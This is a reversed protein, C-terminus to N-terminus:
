RTGCTKESLFRQVLFVIGRGFPCRPPRCHGRRRRTKSRRIEVPAFHCSSSFGRSSYRGRGRARICERAAHRGNVRGFVDGRRCAAAHYCFLACASAARAGPARTQVLCGSSPPRIFLWRLLPYSPCPEGSQDRSRAPRIRRRENRFFLPILFGSGISTLRYQLIEVKTLMAIMMGATYAGLVLEMGLENALSVAGFLIMISIRVPLVSTDGMWRAIMHSLRESRLSRAFVIAAIAIALFAMSLLTQHLHQHAQALVLPALILPGLEGIAAAGLVYRGFNSDLDRSQRLIPILMGFATTPLVIGVLLPAHVLGVLYLLGIFVSTLGLSVLWALAGLRLPDAGIKDPNFEFGAQFFLFILGFEGLLGISGHSTVWGAGSPGILIGLVLELIVAPMRILAPLRALLPALVAVFAIVFLCHFESM